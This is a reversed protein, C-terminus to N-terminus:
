SIPSERKENTEEDIAINNDKFDKLLEDKTCIMDELFLSGIANRLNYPLKSIDLSYEKLYYEQANM